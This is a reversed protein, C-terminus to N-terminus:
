MDIDTIEVNEGDIIDYTYDEFIENNEENYYELEDQVYVMKLIEDINNTCYYLNNSYEDIYGSIILYPNNYNFVENSQNKLYNIIKEEDLMESNYYTKDLESQEMIYFYKSNNEDYSINNIVNKANNNLINVCIELIKANFNIPIARM